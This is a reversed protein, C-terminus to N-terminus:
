FFLEFLHHFNMGPQLYDGPHLHCQGATSAAISLFQILYKTSKRDGTQYELWKGLEKVFSLTQPVFVGSTEVAVSGFGHSCLLDIYKEEKLSEARAAVVGAVHVALRRYLPIFTDAPTADWM